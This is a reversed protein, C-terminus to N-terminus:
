RSSPHSRSPADSSFRRSVFRSGALGFRWPVDAAKSIGIRPGVLLEAMASPLTISFDIADAEARYAKAQQAAQEIASDIAACHRRALANLSM